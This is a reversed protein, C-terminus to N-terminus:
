SQFQRRGNFYDAPFDPPDGQWPMIVSRVAAKNDPESHLSVNLHVLRPLGAFHELSFTDLEPDPTDLEPDPNDLEPDPAGDMFEIHCSVEISQM